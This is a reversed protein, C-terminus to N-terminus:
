YPDQAPPHEMMKFVGALILVMLTDTIDRSRDPLYRHAQSLGFAIGATLVTALRLGAGARAILWVASGFLFVKQLFSQTSLDPSGSIMSRFPIWEFDQAPTEFTFPELGRIIVAVIFVVAIALASNRFRSAVLIWVVAAALAGIIESPTLVIGTILIRSGIVIGMLAVVAIRSWGASLIAKLMCALALWCAAFYYVRTVSIQPSFILPRVAHWYKHLDIVPVYPFLQFAVWTAILIFVFRRRRDISIGWPLRGSYAIVIGALSAGLLTGLTNAYVDSLASERGAEYFQTLEMAFSLAMGACTAISMRVIAPRRRLALSAFLGFPTYLLVNAILDGRGAPYNWTSLLTTLPGRIGPPRQFEFPFLSAYIIGAVVIATAWAYRRDLLFSAAKSSPRMM